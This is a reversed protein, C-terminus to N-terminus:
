SLVFLVGPTTLTAQVEVRLGTVGNPVDFLALGRISKGAPIDGDPPPPSIDSFAADFERGSADKLHFGLLSSFAQVSSGRNTVQVDVSVFHRGESPQLFKGPTQPDKIGFVTVELEGTGATEGVAYSAKRPTAGGNKDGGATIAVVLGVVVVVPLAVKAWLPVRRGIEAPPAATPPALRPRSPAPAPTPRPDAPIPPRSSPNPTQVPDVSRVRDETVVHETWTTGDWYRGVFRGSPDKKWGAARPDTVEDAM